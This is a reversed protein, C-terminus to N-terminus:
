SPKTQIAKICTSIKAIVKTLFSVPITNLHFDQHINIFSSVLLHRHRYLPKYGIFFHWLGQIPLAWKTPIGQSQEPVSQIKWANNHPVFTSQQLLLLASLPAPPPQELDPPRAPSAVLAVRGGGALSGPGDHWAQWPWWEPGALWPRDQKLSM